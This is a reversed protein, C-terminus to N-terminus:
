LKLISNVTNSSYQNVCVFSAKPQGLFTLKKIMLVSLKCRFEKEGAFLQRSSSTKILVFRNVKGM